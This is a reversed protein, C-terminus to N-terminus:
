PKWRLDNIDKAKIFEMHMDSFMIICGRGDHNTTIILEPGGAPNQSLTTEFLLVIDSPMSNLKLGALNKNLAYASGHTPNWKMIVSTRHSSWERIVSEAISECWNGAEPLQGDHCRAYWRLASALQRMRIVHTTAPSKNVRSLTWQLIFPVTVVFLIALISVILNARRPKRFPALVVSFFSLLGCLIAGYIAVDMSFDAFRGANPHPGKVVTPMIDGNIRFAISSAVSLLLVAMSFFLASKALIRVRPKDFHQSQETESGM